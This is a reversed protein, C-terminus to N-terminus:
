KLKNKSQRRLSYWVENTQWINLVNALVYFITKGLFLISFKLSINEFINDINVERQLFSWIFFINFTEKYAILSSFISFCIEWSIEKPSSATKKRWINLVPFFSVMSVFDSVAFTPSLPL